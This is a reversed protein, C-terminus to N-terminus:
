ARTQSVDAAPGRTQYTTVCSLGMYKRLWRFVFVSVPESEAANTKIELYTDLSMVTQWGSRFEKFLGTLHLLPEPLAAVPAGM